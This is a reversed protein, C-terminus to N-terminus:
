VHARGIQNKKNSNELLSLKINNDFHYKHSAYEMSKDIYAMDVPHSVNSDIGTPSVYHVQIPFCPDDVPLVIGKESLERLDSTKIGKEQISKIAEKM